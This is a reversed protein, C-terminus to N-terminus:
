VRADAYEPFEERLEDFIFTEGKETPLPAIGKILGGYGDGDKLALITRGKVDCWNNVGCARMMRMIFECGFSTGFRGIFKGEGDKLPFDLGYGPTGQGAGGYNLTLTCTFIGHDEWGLFASEVRAIEKHYETSM